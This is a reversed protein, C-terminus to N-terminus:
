VPIRYESESDRIRAGATTRNELVSPLVNLIFMGRRKIKSVHSDVEAPTIMQLVRSADATPSDM